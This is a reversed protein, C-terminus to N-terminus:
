WSDFAPRCFSFIYIQPLFLNIFPPTHTATTHGPSAAPLTPRIKTRLWLTQPGACRTLHFTSLTTSGLHTCRHMSHNRSSEHGELHNAACTICATIPRGSFGLESALYPSCYFWCDTVAVWTVTLWQCDTVILWYHCNKELTHKLRSKAPEYQSFWTRSCQELLAM